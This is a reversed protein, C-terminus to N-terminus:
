TIQPLILFCPKAKPQNNNPLPAIRHNFHPSTFTAWHHGVKSVGYVVCDMSNELGSYQLPYGNGEGPCRGLGPISGLDGANAPMNKVVPGGPFGWGSFSPYSLDVQTQLTRILNLQFSWYNFYLHWVRWQSDVRISCATHAEWPTLCFECRPPHVRLFIANM